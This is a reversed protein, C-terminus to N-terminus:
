AIGASAVIGLALQSNRNRGPITEHGPHYGQGLALHRVSRHVSVQLASQRIRSRVRVVRCRDALPREIRYLLQVGALPQASLQGRTGPCGPRKQVTHRLIDIMVAPGLTVIM